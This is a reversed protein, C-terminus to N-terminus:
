SGSVDILTNTGITQSVTLKARTSMTARGHVNSATATAERTPIVGSAEVLEHYEDASLRPLARLLATLDWIDSDRM